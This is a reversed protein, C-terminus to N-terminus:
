AFYAERVAGSSMAEAYTAQAVVSGSAMVVVRDCIAQVVELAHEVIIISVGSDRIRQCEGQIREVLHPAVGVMPEDLLLVRPSRMLCRMIEVLRRQGGSLESGYLNAVEAMDFETLRDWVSDMAAAVRAQRARGGALSSRLRSGDAGLAAVLLNEFVTLDDFTSTLQFTRCLGLRARRHPPAATIDAGGLLVRGRTVPIQGGLAGILSSKGAGNPGILGVVEKERLELSADRVAVVGGFRVTVESVALVPGATVAPGGATVAPGGVTM